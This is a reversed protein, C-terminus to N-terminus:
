RSIPAMPAASPRRGPRARRLDGARGAAGARRRPRSRLRRRTRASFATANLIVDPRFEALTQALRAECAPDKLSAVFWAEVAFGRAHLRMPSRSSRRSIAPSFPRAISPSCRARRMPRPRRPLGRRLPRRARGPASERWPAPAGALTSAFGLFSRLNDPGGDRFSPGSARLITPRSRRPASWGSTAIRTAPSSRWLSAACARPPRSSTSAMPGIIRAASCACSSSGRM